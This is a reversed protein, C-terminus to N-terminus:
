VSIILQRTFVIQDSPMRRWPLLSTISMIESSPSFSCNKTNLKWFFWCQMYQHTTLLIGENGLLCSVNFCHHKLIPGVDAVSAWYYFMMTEVHRTQQTPAIVCLRLTIWMLGRQNRCHICPKKPSYHIKHIINGECKEHFQQNCRVSDVLM